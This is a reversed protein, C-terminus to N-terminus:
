EVPRAIQVSPDQTLNDTTAGYVIASGTDVIIVVVENGLLVANNVLSALSLQVFYTPPYSRQSSQIMFGAKDRVTITMSAGDLLTRIGVNMRARAPDMPAILVGHQGAGIADRAVLQEITMGTTGAAGADNFVRMVTVPAAGGDAVLDLSGITQSLGFAAIVDAHSLTEGAALSYPLAPDSSSGASGQPHFVLRGGIRAATPNHMQLSTRFFSGFSGAVTGAVPLVRTGAALPPRPVVRVSINASTPGDVNCTGAANRAHIRFWLTAPSTATRTLTLHTETTVTSTSGAFSSSSAEEIVYHTAAAVSAWSLDFATGSTVEAPASLVPATPTTCALGATTFSFTEGFTAGADNVAQVTWYYTSGPDTQVARSTATTAELLPPPASTGFYLRYATADAAAAWLLTVPPAVSMAGNAPSVLNPSGPPHVCTLSLAGANGSRAIDNVLVNSIALPVTGTADGAATFTINAVTGGGSLPSGSAMAVHLVGGTANSSISFGSTLAGATVAGPTLRATDYAVRFELSLMGSVVDITVPISVMQGCQGSSSGVTVTQASAAAAYLIALLFIKKM